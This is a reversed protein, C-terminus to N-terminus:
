QLQAIYVASKCAQMAKYDQANGQARMICLALFPGM